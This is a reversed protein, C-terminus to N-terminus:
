LLMEELEDINMDNIDADDVAIAGTVSAGTMADDSAGVDFLLSVNYKKELLEMQKYEDSVVDDDFLGDVIDDSEIVYDIDFQKLDYVVSEDISFKKLYMKPFSFLDGDKVLLSFEDDIESLKDVADHYFMVTEKSEVIDDVSFKGNSMVDLFDQIDNKKCSVYNMHFDIFLAKFSMNLSDFMVDDVDYISVLQYLSLLMSKVHSLLSYTINVFSVFGVILGTIANQLVISEQIDDFMRNLLKTEKEHNLMLNENISQFLVALVYNLRMKKVSPESYSEQISELILDINENFSKQFMMADKKNEDFIVDSSNYVDEFNVYHSYYYAVSREIYRKVEKMDMSRIKRKKENQLQKITNNM